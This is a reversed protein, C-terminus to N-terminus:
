PCGASPTDDDNGLGDFRRSWLSDGDSSYKITLFDAETSVGYSVGVVLVNGEVDIAMDTPSDHESDPGDYRTVWLQDLTDVESSSAESSALPPTTAFFGM